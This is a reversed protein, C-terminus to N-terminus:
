QAGLYVDIVRRDTLVSEPAGDAIAQGLHVAVLRTCFRKLFTVNHDIVVIALRHVKQYNLLAESVDESETGTLGATPEDLLLLLPNGQTARAVELFRRQGYTLQSVQGPIQRFLRSAIQNSNWAAAAASAGVLRFGHLLSRVGSRKAPNPGSVLLHGPGDLTEFLRPTQFTRAVGMRAIDFPRKGILEADQLRISGSRPRYIGTIVNFLSTKGSGNPGIIGVIEHCAIKLGMRQLAVVGGFALTLGDVQLLDSSM